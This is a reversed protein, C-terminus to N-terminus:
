TVYRTSHAATTGVYQSVYLSGGLLSLHPLILGKLAGLDRGISFELLNTGLLTEM